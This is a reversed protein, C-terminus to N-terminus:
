MEICVKGVHPRSKLYELAARLETLPFTRDVLPRIAHQEMATIMAAFQDRNGVSIGHLRAGKMILVALNLDHRAGAVVGIISITGGMRVSRFSQGITGGGGIEVVLDVGDPVFQLVREGWKPDEVYNIVHAAGLTRLKELKAASSSTAIVQAGAAHAFQLAFLSVGGTGQTLVSSGPGIDGTGIVAAWATLGACPLTASKVFNLHKPGPLIADEAFVRYECAVGDVSGGLSAAVRRETAPGAPWDPFFCGVVRDGVRWESVESGLEVIEGAGDSLLVLDQKKQRTGYGGEVVVLDRFNLSAARMRVLVERPGPKPEPREVIRINDLSGVAELVAVKM